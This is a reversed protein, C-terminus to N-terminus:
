KKEEMDVGHQDVRKLNIHSFLDVVNRGSGGDQSATINFVNHTLYNGRFFVAYGEEVEIRKNIEWLLLDGGHWNGFPVICNYGEGTDEQDKHPTGSGRQDQNIALGAWLGGVKQLPIDTRTTKGKQGVHYGGKEILKNLWPLNFMAKYANSDWFRLENALHQFLAHNAEVWGKGAENDHLYDKSMYPHKSYDAWLAYHRVTYEGRQHNKARHKPLKNTIEKLVQVLNAPIRLRIALINSSGKDKIILPQPCSKVVEFKPLEGEEVKEGALFKKKLCETLPGHADKRQAKLHRVTVPSSQTVSKDHSQRWEMYRGAVLDALTMSSDGHLEIFDDATFLRTRIMEAVRMKVRRTCGGIGGIWKGESNWM